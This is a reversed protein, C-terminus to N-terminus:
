KKNIRSVDRYAEILIDKDIKRYKYFKLKISNEINKIGLDSFIPLGSGLIMPSIFFYFKDIMDESLFSTFTHMGGEIMLIYIGEKYCKKLIHQPNLEEMVWVKHGMEEIKKIKDRYDNATVVITKGDKHKLINSELPIDLRGDIVIRYPQIKVKRGRVNMRPNDTLITNFGVVIGHSISRLYHVYRRSEDSTIWKSSGDTAAIKGDITMAGKMIVFPRKYKKNVIYVENLREAEEQLVGEVVEIGNNKLKEVGKGNVRKDPDRMGIVVKKIGARIIAETCPPTKGHHDCPELNVYMIGDKAKEGAMELAHREAHLDGPFRHYGEGVIKGDKVIVAGVMPNPLTRLKARKALKIAKKMYFINKDAM